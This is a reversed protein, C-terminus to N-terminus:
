DVLLDQGVEAPTMIFREDEVQFPELAFQDFRFEHFDVSDLDLPMGQM